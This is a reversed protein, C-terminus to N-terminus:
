RAGAPSLDLVLGDHAAVVGPVPDLAAREAVADTLHVLVVRRAGLRARGARIEDLSLHAQAGRDVTTCEAVLVDAGRAIAELGACWRTDGSVAVHTPGAPTDLTFRYALSSPHHDMPLGDFRLGPGGDRDRFESVELEDFVVDFERREDLEAYCLRALGDLTERTGRPGHVWFPATRRGRFVLHLLLFPWGGVHDGHLHTVFLRDIATADRGARTLASVATPGVDVLFPAGSGRDVVLGASGRGDDHFATGTGLFLLHPPPM